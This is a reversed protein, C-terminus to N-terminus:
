PRQRPPVFSRQPPTQHDLLKLEVTRNEEIPPGDACQTLEADQCTKVSQLLYSVMLSEIIIGSQRDIKTQITISECGWAALFGAGQARVYQINNPANGCAPQQMFDRYLEGPEFGLPQMYTSYEVLDPGLATMAVDVRFKDQGAIFTAGDAFDGFVPAPSAVQDGPLHLNTIGVSPSVAIYLTVLDTIMGIMLPDGAPKGPEIPGNPHLSLRSIPLSALDTRHQGTALDVAEAWRVTEFPVGGEFVVQHSSEASAITTSVIEGAQQRRRDELHYSFEQDAQYRREFVFPAQGMAVPGLTLVLSVTM